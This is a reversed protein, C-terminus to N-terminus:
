TVLEMRGPIVFPELYNDIGMSARGCLLWLLHALWTLLCPGYLLATLLLMQPWSLRSLCWAPWRAKGGLLVQTYRASRTDAGLHPM